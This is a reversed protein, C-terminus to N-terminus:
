GRILPQDFEEGKASQNGYTLFEEVMVGEGLVVAHAVGLEADQVEHLDGLPVQAVDGVARHHLRDVRLLVVAEGGLAVDRPLVALDGLVDHELEPVGLGALEDQVQVPDADGADRPSDEPPSPSALGAPKIYSFFLLTVTAGDVLYGFYAFM